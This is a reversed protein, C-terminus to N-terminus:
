TTATAGVAPFHWALLGAVDQGGKGNFASDEHLQHMTLVRPVNFFRGGEKLIRLWLDYDDLGFRDEWHALDQRVIASSNIIPNGRRFAAPPVFHAPLTPGFPQRIKPGFYNCWTGVVSLSAGEGSKVVERQASLKEPLWLDDCDLVAVWPAATSVAVLGNMAGVKSNVDPMNVVHVREALGAAAAMQLVRQAALLAAGGTSGHGNIGIWWDWGRDEQRFVGEACIPLFQWGNAVPTLITVWPEAM